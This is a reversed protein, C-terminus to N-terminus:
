KLCWLATKATEPLTEDRASLCSVDYKVEYIVTASETLVGVASRKLGLFPGSALAQPQGQPDRELPVNYQMTRSFPTPSLLRDPPAIRVVFTGNKAWKAVAKM